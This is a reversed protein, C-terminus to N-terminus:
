RVQRGRLEILGRRERITDKLTELQMPKPRPAIKGDKTFLRVGEELTPVAVTGKAGARLRYHGQRYGTVRFASDDDQLYLLVSEGAAFNSFGHAEIRYNGVEGGFTRVTVVGPADGAVLDTVQVQAETIIATRDENWFSRTQLVKGEVVAKSSVMLEDQDMAIFTSAAAPLTVAVLLAACLGALVRKNM